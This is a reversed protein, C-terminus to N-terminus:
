SFFYIAHEHERLTHSMWENPIFFDNEFSKLPAHDTVGAITLKGGCAM